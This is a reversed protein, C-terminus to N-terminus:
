SRGRVRDKGYIDARFQAVGDADLWATTYTLHVPVPESLDVRRTRKTDLSAAIQEADWGEEGALLVEALARPDSVRVCGSSFARVTRAFLNPSSTDHLYVSYKNPFMFKIEGLANKPGPAQRFSYPFNERSVQSWDISSADVRRASAGHGQTVTYGGARLYNPNSQVKRLIDNRAIRRPVGWSPNLVLHKISDSFVPTKRSRKGVIVPMELVTAGYEVVKLEFAPINVIVHRAGLDDPLADWRAINRKIQQVRSAASVNLMARTKPGVVGDTELGTRQQFRRVAAELSEDFLMADESLGMEADTQSLRTRLSAVHESQDGLRLTKRSVLREFGGAADIAEYRDLLAALSTRM